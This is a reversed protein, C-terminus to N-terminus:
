CLGLDAMLKGMFLCKNVDIYLSVMQSLLTDTVYTAIISHTFVKCVLYGLVLLNQDSDYVFWPVVNTQQRKGERQWREEKDAACCHGITAIFQIHVSKLLTKVLTRGKISVEM